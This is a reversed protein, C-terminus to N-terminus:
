RRAGQDTPSRRRSLLHAGLLTVAIAGVVLVITTPSQGPTQAADASGALPRLQEALAVVAGSWDDRSLAPQVDDGLVQRLEADSVPSDQALSVAFTRVSPDVAVAFVVGDTGLGSDDATTDAWDQRDLGDFTDVFVAYLRIGQANRLREIAAQATATDGGLVGARDTVPQTLRGPQEAHATGTMLLAAVLALLVALLRALRPM